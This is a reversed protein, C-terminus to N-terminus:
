ASICTQRSRARAAPAATRHRCVASNMVVAAAIYWGGEELRDMLERIGATRWDLSWRNV